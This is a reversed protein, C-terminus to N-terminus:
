HNEELGAVCLGKPVRERLKTHQKSEELPALIREKRVKANVRRHRGDLGVFVIGQIL